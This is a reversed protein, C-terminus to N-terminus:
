LRRKSIKPRSWAIFSRRFSWKRFVWKRTCINHTLSNLGLWANQNAKRSWKHDVVHIMLPRPDNLDMRSIMQPRPDNITNYLQLNLEPFIRGSKFSLRFSRRKSMITTTAWDRVLTAPLEKSNSLEEREKLLTFLERRAVMWNTLKWDKRDMSRWTVARSILDVLYPETKPINKYLLIRHEWANSLTM